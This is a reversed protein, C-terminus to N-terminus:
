SDAVFFDRTARLRLAAAQARTITIAHKETCKPQVLGATVSVLFWGTSGREMVVHTSKAAYKYSNKKPGAPTYHLRAGSRLAKPLNELKQEAQAAARELEGYHQITFATAKGNVVELEAEIKTANKQDIKIRM